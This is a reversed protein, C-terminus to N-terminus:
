RLECHRPLNTNEDIDVALGAKGSRSYFYYSVGHLCINQITSVGDVYGMSVNKLSSEPKCSVISAFTLASVVAIIFIKM